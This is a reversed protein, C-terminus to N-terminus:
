SAAARAEKSLLGIAGATGEDAYGQGLREELLELYPALLRFDVGQERAAVEFTRFGSVLMGLNAQVDKTYDGSDLQDAIAGNSPLMATLWATLLGSFEKLPMEEERVLAFAHTVGAFMGYMASLLAIDYLAAAGPRTGTYRVGLVAALASEHEDLVERSGSYFVYGGGEPVGVMSPSAMIGGSLFRAGRAHAWEARADAEKPTGTTLDVLDTGVLDSEELATGVSADDMLCTVVLTGSAVAEAATAAVDAGLARLPETRAPTRNWVTLPHGAALWARALATGMAGLGLLVIRPKTDNTM